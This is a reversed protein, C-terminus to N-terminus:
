GINASHSKNSEGGQFAAEAREKQRAFGRFDPFRGPRDFECLIGMRFTSLWGINLWLTEGHSHHQRSNKLPALKASYSGSPGM